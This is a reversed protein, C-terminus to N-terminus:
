VPNMFLVRCSLILNLISKSNIIDAPRLQFEPSYRELSIRITAALINSSYFSPFVVSTKGEM